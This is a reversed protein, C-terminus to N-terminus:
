GWLPPISMKSVDLKSWAAPAERRREVPAPFFRQVLRNAHEIVVTGGAYAPGAGWYLTKQLGQRANFQGYYNPNAQIVGVPVHPFYSHHEVVETLVMTVPEPLLAMLQLQYSVRDAADTVNSDTSSIVFGHCASANGFECQIFPVPTVEPDLQGLADQLNVNTLSSFNRSVNEFKAGFYGPSVVMHQFLATEESALKLGISNMNELTPPIAIVLFDGVLHQVPGNDGIRFQVTVKGNSPEGKPRTIKKVRANFFVNENEEGQRLYNTINDYMEQCGHKATFMWGEEVFTMLFSGYVGRLVHFASINGFPLTGAAQATGTFFAPFNQLFPEAAFFDALPLRLIERITDPNDSDELEPYTIRLYNAITTILPTLVGLDGPPNLLLGVGHETDAAYSPGDDGFPGAGQIETFRTVHQVMDTIWPVQNFFGRENNRTTNHMLQFGLEIHSVGNIPPSRPRTTCHGGLKETLELVCVKYGNDKIFVAGHAGSRGGGIVIADCQQAADTKLTLALLVLLVLSRGM